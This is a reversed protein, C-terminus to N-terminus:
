ATALQLREIVYYEVINLAARPCLGYNRHMGNYIDMAKQPDAWTRNKISSVAKDHTLSGAFRANLEEFDFERIDGDIEVRTLVRQTAKIM